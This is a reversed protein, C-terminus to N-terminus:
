AAESQPPADVNITPAPATADVRLAALWAKIPALEAPAGGVARMPRADWFPSHSFGGFSEILRRLLDQREAGRHWEAILGDVIEAAAVAGVAVDIANNATDVARQRHLIETDLADQDALVSDREREAATVDFRAQTANPTADGAIISLARARDRGNTEELERLMAKAADLRDYAAGLAGHVHERAAVAQDLADQAEALDAIAEALRARQLSVGPGETM